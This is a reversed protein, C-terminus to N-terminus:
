GRSVAANGFLALHDFAIQYAALRAAGRTDGAARLAAYTRERLTLAGVYDGARAYVDAADALDDHRV